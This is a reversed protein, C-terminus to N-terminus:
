VGFFFEFKTALRQFSYCQEYAFKAMREVQAQTLLGAYFLVIATNFDGMKPKNVGLWLYEVFRPEEFLAMVSKATQENDKFQGALTRQVNGEKWPAYEAYHQPSCWPLAIVGMPIGEVWALFLSFRRDTHWAICELDAQMTNHDRKGPSAAIL